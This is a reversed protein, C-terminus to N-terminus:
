TPSYIVTQAHIRELQFVRPSRDTSQRTSSRLLAMNTVRVWWMCLNQWNILTDFLIANFKPM